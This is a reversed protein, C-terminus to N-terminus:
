KTKKTYRSWRSSCSSVCEKGVRRKESRAKIGEHSSHHGVSRVIRNAGGARVDGQVGEGDGDGLVQNRRDAAVDRRAAAAARRGRGRAPGGRGARGPERPLDSSCVDSSWYRIRM